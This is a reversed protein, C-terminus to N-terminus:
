KAFVLFKKFKYRKDNPNLHSYLANEEEDEILSDTISAETKSNSEKLFFFVVLAMILKLVAAVIMAFEWRIELGNV